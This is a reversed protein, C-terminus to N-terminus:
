DQMLKNLLHRLETKLWQKRGKDKILRFNKLLELLDEVEKQFQEDTM